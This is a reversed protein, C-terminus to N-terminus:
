AETTDLAGVREWAFGTVTENGPLERAILPGGNRQVLHWLTGDALLAAPRGTGADLAVVRGAPPPVELTQGAGNLVRVKDGIIAVACRGSVHALELEAM